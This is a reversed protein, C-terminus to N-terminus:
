GGQGHGAAPGNTPESSGSALEVTVTHTRVPEAEWSRRLGFVIATGAEAKAAVRLTFRDVVPSGPVPVAVAARTSGEPSDPASGSERGVVDTERGVLDIGPPTQMVEWRYGTGSPSQLAVTFATGAQVELVDRTDGSDRTGNM